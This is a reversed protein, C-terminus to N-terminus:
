RKGEDHKLVFISAVALGITVLNIVFWMDRTGHVRFIPNYIIATLGLIWVWGGKELTLAQIALYVFAACCVWRLFIYYGYPNDPNLALLLIPIVIAQPIWIKKM